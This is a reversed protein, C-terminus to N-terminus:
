QSSFSLHKGNNLFIIVSKSRLFLVRCIDMSVSASTCEKLFIWKRFLMAPPIANIEDSIGQKINHIEAPRIELVESELFGLLFLVCVSLDPLRGPWFIEGYCSIIWHESMNRLINMSHRTTRVAAEDQVFWNTALDIYRCRLEPFLFENMMDVYRDSTVTSVSGTEDESFYLGAICFTSIGFWVTVTQSHLPKVHLENPNVESWYWM